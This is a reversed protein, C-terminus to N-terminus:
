RSTEFKRLVKTQVEDYEIFSLETCLFTIKPLELKKEINLLDTKLNTIEQDTIDKNIRGLSIRPIYNSFDKKRLTKRLHFVMDRLKDGGEGISLYVLEKYKRSIGVESRNLSIQVPSYILKSVTRDLFFRQIFDFSYGFNMLEVFFHEPKFWSIPIEQGEFVRGIEGVIKRIKYNTKEDLLFGLSYNKM